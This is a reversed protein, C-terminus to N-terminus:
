GDGALHDLEDLEAEAWAAFNEVEGRLSALQAEAGLDVPQMACLLSMWQSAAFVYGELISRRNEMFHLKFEDKMAIKLDVTQRWLEISALIGDSDFKVEIQTM